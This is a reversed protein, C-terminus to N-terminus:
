KPEAMFTLASGLHVEGYSSASFQVENSRSATLMGKCGETSVSDAEIDETFLAVAQCLASHKM